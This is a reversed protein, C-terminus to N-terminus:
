RPQEFSGAEDWLHLLQASSLMSAGRGVPSAQGVSVINESDPFPLPRLLLGHVLSFAVTNAGIGVSLIILAALTFGPRVHLQRVAHRLDLLFWAVGAM